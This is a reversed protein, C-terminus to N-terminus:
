CDQENSFEIRLLNTAIHSLCNLFFMYEFKYEHVLHSQKWGEELVM